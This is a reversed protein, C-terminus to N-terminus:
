IRSFNNINKCLAIGPRNQFVSRLTHNYCLIDIGKTLNLVGDTAVTLHGKNNYISVM